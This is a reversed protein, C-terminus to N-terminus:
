QKIVDGRLSEGNMTSARRIRLGWLLSVLGVIAVGVGIYIFNRNGDMLSSGGITRNGQLAFITGFILLLVGLVFLGIKTARM